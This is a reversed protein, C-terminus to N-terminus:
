TISRLDKLAHAIAHPILKKVIRTTAKRDKEISINKKYYKELVVLDHIKGLETQLQKLYETKRGTAELIYRVEKITKRFPHLEEDKLPHSWTKLNEILEVQPSPKIKPKKLDRSIEKRKELKQKLKKRHAKREIKLPTPDVQYIKTNEIAVDLDRVKGLAKSLKKLDKDDKLVSRMKRISVRLKHVREIQPKKKTKQALEKFTQAEARAFNKLEKM